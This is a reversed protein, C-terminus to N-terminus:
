ANNAEKFTWHHESLAQKLANLANKGIGHLDAIEAETFQRLDSLQHIGAGHLARQAPAALRPLDHDHQSM